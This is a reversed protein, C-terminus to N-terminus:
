YLYKVVMLSDHHFYVQPNPAHFWAVRVSIRKGVFDYPLTGNELSGALYATDTEGPKLSGKYPKSLRISTLPIGSTDVVLEYIGIGELTGSSNRNQLQLRFETSLRTIDWPTLFDGAIGLAVYGDIISFALSDVTPPLDTEPQLLMVPEGSCWPLIITWIIM